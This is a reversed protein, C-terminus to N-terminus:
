QASSSKPRPQRHLAGHVALAIDNITFPKHLIARFGASVCHASGTYGTCGIVGVDPDIERLRRLVEDGAIGGVLGIDTIVCDFPAGTERARRYAAVADAGNRYADIEYGLTEIMKRGIQLIMENDDILLIKGHGNQEDSDGAPEPEGDAAPLYIEFEAGEGPRSRVTIRGEHSQVIAQSIALGLGSGDSKNTYYPDFITDIAKKPIGPGNDRISIYIFKETDHRGHAAKPRQINKATIVIDGGGPMAEVANLLINHVVQCIQGRDVSAPYLNDDIRFESRVNTSRLVLMATEALIDRISTLEKAPVGGKSFTLLQRTLDKARLSATEADLLLPLKKDHYDMSLRALSLNGIITTLLNNFDHAIGGALLGLSEIKRAKEIERTQGIFKIITGIMSLSVFITIGPSFYSSYSHPLFVITVGQYIYLYDYYACLTAIFIGALTYLLYSYMSHRLLDIIICIVMYIMLIALIADKLMYLSGTRGRAYDWGIHLLKRGYNAQSIFLDPYTFAAATFGIVAAMATIILARNIKRWSTNLEVLYMLMFPVAFIFWATSLAQVRHFQRGLAYEQFVFCCLVCIESVVFVFGLIGFLLTALHLRDRSFCYLITYMSIGVLLIGSCITLYLMPPMFTILDNVHMIRPPVRNGIIDPAVRPNVRKRFVASM